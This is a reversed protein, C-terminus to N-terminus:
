SEYYDYYLIRIRIFWSLFLFRVMLGIIPSHRTLFSPGDRPYRPTVNAHSNDMLLSHLNFWAGTESQCRWCTNSDAFVFILFLCFFDFMEWMLVFFLFWGFVSSKRKRNFTLSPRMESNRQMKKKARKSGILGNSHLFFGILFWKLSLRTCFEDKCGIMRPRGVNVTIKPHWFMLVSMLHTKLLILFRSPKTGPLLRLRGRSIRSVNVKAAASRAGPQSGVSVRPAAWPPSTSPSTSTTLRRGAAAAATTVTRPRLTTRIRWQQTNSNWWCRRAAICIRPSWTWRGLTAGAEGLAVGLRLVAACGVSERRIRALHTSANSDKTPQPHSVDALSVLSALLAALRGVILQRHWCGGLVPHQPRRKSCFCSTHQSFLINGFEMMNFAGHSVM